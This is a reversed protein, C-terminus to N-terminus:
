RTIDGNTFSEIEEAILKPDTDCFLAHAGDDIVRLKADPMADALCQAAAIPIVGDAAGHIILAPTDIMGLESRLDTDELYRLGADLIKTDMRGARRVFVDCFGDCGSPAVCLEAFSRLVNEKERRMKLRMARLMRPNSGPHNDTAIMRATTSLLVLGAVREPKAIAASLAMIGGISWGVIINDTKDEALARLLANDDESEGLCDWWPIRLEDPPTAFADILPDWVDNTTGWGSIFILRTKSV